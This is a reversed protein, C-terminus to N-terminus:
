LPDRTKTKTPPPSARGILFLVVNREHQLYKCSRRLIKKIVCNTVSSDLIENFGRDAEHYRASGNLKAHQTFLFFFVPGLFLRPSVLHPTGHLQNQRQGQDRQTRSACKRCGFINYGIIVNWAGVGGREVSYTRTSFQRQFLGYGGATRSQASPEECVGPNVDGVAFRL